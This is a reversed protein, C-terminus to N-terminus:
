GASLSFPRKKRVAASVFSGGTQKLIEARFINGKTKMLNFGSVAKQAEKLGRNPHKAKRARKFSEIMVADMLNLM